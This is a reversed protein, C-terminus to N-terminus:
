DGMPSSYQFKDSILTINRAGLFTEHEAAPDKVINGRETPPSKAKEKQLTKLKELPFKPSM